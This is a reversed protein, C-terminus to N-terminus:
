RGVISISQTDPLFVRKALTKIRDITVEEIVKISEERSNVRGTLLMTRGIAGAVHSTNELSMLFGNIMQQKADALKQEDNFNDAFGYLEDLIHKKVQETKDRSFGAYVNFLGTNEYPSHASYISYALGKEERIHQFLLSSMSGGIILNMVPMVYRESDSRTIGKFAICM